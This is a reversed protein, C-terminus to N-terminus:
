LGVIVMFLWYAEFINVLGGSGSIITVKSFRSISTM